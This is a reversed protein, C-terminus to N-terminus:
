GAVTYNLTSRQGCSDPQDFSGHRWRVSGRGAAARADPRRDGGAFIAFFYWAHLALGAPAPLLAIVIAIPALAERSSKM